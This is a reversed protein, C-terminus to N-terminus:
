TSKWKDVAQKVHSRVNQGVLKMGKSMHDFGGLNDGLKFRVEASLLYARAGLHRGLWVAKQGLSKLM